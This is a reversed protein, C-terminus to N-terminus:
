VAGGAEGIDGLYEEWVKDQLKKFVEGGKGGVPIGDVHSIRTCLTGSSTVVLEDANMAETLTVERSVVPVNVKKAANILNKLTIGALIQHDFPHHVLAGDIIFSVNCHAMETVYPGRHFIVEDCGAQKAKEAAMVNPILNLTKINCHQYRTDEVTIVRFQQDKPTMELPLLMCLLNPSAEEPFAHGRVASGRSAQWYILGKGDNGDYLEILRALIEKLKEKPMSFPIQLLRCSNYFRDIHGDALHIVGNAMYAADYCGDGFYVARDTIPCVLENIDGFKGNYYGVEKM